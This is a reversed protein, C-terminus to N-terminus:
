QAAYVGSLGGGVIGIDIHEIAPAPPADEVVPVEEPVTGDGVVVSPEFAVESDPADISEEEKSM